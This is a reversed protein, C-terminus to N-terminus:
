LLAALVHKTLSLTQNTFVVSQAQDTILLGYKCKHDHTLLDELIEVDRNTVTTKAKVELALYQDDIQYIYDIEKGSKSDQYFKVKDEPLLSPSDPQFNLWLIYLCNEILRGRYSRDQGIDKLGLVFNFHNILGNDSLYVKQNGGGTKNIGTSKKQCFYVLHADIFYDIYKNITRADLDLKRAIDSQSVVNGINQALQTLIRGLVQPNDISADLVDRYITVIMLDRLYKRTIAALSSQQGFQKLQHHAVWPYGGYLLYKEFILATDQPLKKNALEIADILKTKDPQLLAQSFEDKLSTILEQYSPRSKLELNLRYFDAFSLTPLTFIDVRGALAEHGSRKLQKGSSGTLFFKWTNELDILAKIQGAWNKISQAEDIFVYVPQGRGGKLLSLKEYIALVQNILLGSQNYEQLIPNDGQIFLIYGRDVGDKLLQDILQYLLVSKGVRRGGVLLTALGNRKLSQYLGDFERRKFEEVLHNPLVPQQYWPNLKVITDLIDNKMAKNILQLM